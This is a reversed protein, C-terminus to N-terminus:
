DAEGMGPQAFFYGQFLRIGADQLWHFEEASEIGAAIVDIGRDTCMAVVGRTIAQAPRSRHIDHTIYHDLKLMSPELHAVPRLDADRRGFNDALIRFGARRISRRITVLNATSGLLGLNGLELVIRDPGIGSTEAVHLTVELVEDVNGAKIDSCNLHLNGDIGFRAAAELARIRCAQDFDFRKDHSIRSIVTSASEQKIGRVLAEFGIVDQESADIITQFAFNIDDGVMEHCANIKETVDIYSPSSESTNM